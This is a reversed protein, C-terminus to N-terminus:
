EGTLASARKTPERSAADEARHVSEENAAPSPLGDHEFLAFINLAPSTSKEALLFLMTSNELFKAKVLTKEPIPRM